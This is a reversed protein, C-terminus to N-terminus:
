SRKNVLYVLINTILPTDAIKHLILVRKQKITLLRSIHCHRGIEIAGTVTARNMVEPVSIELVNAARKLGNETTENLDAGTGVFSVPFTEEADKLGWQRAFAWM